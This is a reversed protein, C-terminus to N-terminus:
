SRLFLSLSYPTQHRLGVAMSASLFTLTCRTLPVFAPSFAGRLLCHHTGKVRLGRGGHRWLGWEERTQFSQPTQPGRPLHFLFCLNYNRSSTSNSRMSCRLLLCPFVPSPPLSLSPNPYFSPHGISIRHTKNPFFFLSQSFTGHTVCCHGVTNSTHLNFTNVSPLHQVSCNGCLIFPIFLMCM